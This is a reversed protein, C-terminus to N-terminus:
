TQIRQFLTEYQNVMQTQSFNREVYGRTAAQFSGYEFTVESLMDAYVERPFRIEEGDAIARGAIGVDTPIIDRQGGNPSTVVPLGSAIAELFVMGFAEHESPLFFVDAWNYESQLDDVYGRLDLWDPIMSGRKLAMERPGEGVIRYEADIGSDRLERVAEIATSLNKREVLRSVTLVRLPDHRKRERWEWEDIDIGYHILQPEIGYKENVGECMDTSPAVIDDASSLLWGNVLDAVPRIAAFRTPDHVDAGMVSIILPTDARECLLPLMPSSPLSFHGNVVDAWEVCEKAHSYARVPFTAWHGSDAPGHISRDCCGRVGDTVVRVTHGRGELGEKLLRTVEGGGGCNPDTAPYEYNVLLVDM